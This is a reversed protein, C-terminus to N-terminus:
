SRRKLFAKVAVFGLGVVVALTVLTTVIQGIFHLVFSLLLVVVVAGVTVKVVSGGSTKTPLISM